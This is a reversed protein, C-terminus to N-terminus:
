RKLLKGIGEASFQQTSSDLFLDVENFSVITGDLHLYLHSFLYFDSPYMNSTYPSYQMLGCQLKYLTWGTMISVHPWANDQHFLFEDEKLVRKMTNRLHCRLSKILMNSDKCRQYDIRKESARQQAVIQDSLSFCM